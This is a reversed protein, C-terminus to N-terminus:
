SAGPVVVSSTCRPPKSGSGARSLLVAVRLLRRRVVRGDRAVRDAVRKLSVDPGASLMRMFSM